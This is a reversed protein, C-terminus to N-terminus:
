VTRHCVIRGDPMCLFDKSLFQFTNISIDVNKLIQGFGKSTYNTPAERFFVEELCFLWQDKDEKEIIILLDDGM